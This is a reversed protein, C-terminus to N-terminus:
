RAANAPIAQPTLIIRHWRPFSIVSDADNKMRKVFATQFYLEGEAPWVLM